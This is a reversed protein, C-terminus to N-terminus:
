FSSWRAQTASQVDSSDPIDGGGAAGKVFLALRGLDISRTFKITVTFQRASAKRPTSGDKEPLDVVWSGVDAPLRKPSYAISRGDYAVAVGDFIKM